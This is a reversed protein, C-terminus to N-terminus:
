QRAEAVRGGGDHEKGRPEFLFGASPWGTREKEVAMLNEAYALARRDTEKM